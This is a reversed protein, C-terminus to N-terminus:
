FGQQIPVRGGAVYFEVTDVEWSRGHLKFHWVGESLLCESVSLALFLRLESM